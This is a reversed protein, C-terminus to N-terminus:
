PTRKVVVACIRWAAVDSMTWASATGVVSKYSMAGEEGDANQGNSAALVQPSTPAYVKNSTNFVCDVVWNGSANVIAVSIATGTSTAAASTVIPSTQDVGFLNVGMLSGQLTGNTYVTFTHSGATLGKKGYIKVGRDAALSAVLSDCKVTSGGSVSDVKVSDVVFSTPSYCAVGVVSYPNTGAGRTTTLTNPSAHGAINVSDANGFRITNELTTFTLESGRVYGAANLGAIVFYYQTAVSLASIEAWTVQAASGTYAPSIPISDTYTGTTTGWLFRVVTATGHPNVTGNITASTTAIGNAAVTVVTALSDIRGSVTRTVGAKGGLNRAARRNIGSEQGFAVVVCLLLLILTRKM